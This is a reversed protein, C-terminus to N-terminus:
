RGSKPRPKITVKPYKKRLALQTKVAREHAKGILEEQAQDIFGGAGPVYRSKVEDPLHALASRLLQPNAPVYTRRAVGSFDAVLLKLATALAEEAGIVMGLRWVLVEANARAIALGEESPSSGVRDYLQSSIAWRGAFDALAESVSTVFQSVDSWDVLLDTLPHFERFKGIDITVPVNETEIWPQDLRLQHRVEAASDEDPWTIEVIRYGLLPSRAVAEADLELAPALVENM